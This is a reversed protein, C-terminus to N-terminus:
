QNQLQYQSGAPGIRELEGPTLIDPPVDELNFVEIVDGPEIITTPNARGTVPVADITRTVKYISTVAEDTFGGAIAVASLINMNNQFDFRGSTAVAGLIYFPRYSVVEVNVSPNVLFGESLREALRAELARAGLGEADVAGILPVSIQGSDDLKYNSSLDPQGFVMLRIEDDAGLLYPGDNTLQGIDLPPIDPLPQLTEVSTCATLAFAAAALLSM